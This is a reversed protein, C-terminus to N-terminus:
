DPSFADGRDLVDKLQPRTMTLEITSDGSSLEVRHSEIRTLEYKQGNAQVFRGLLYLQGNILAASRRRGVITSNLVLKEPAAAPAPAAVAKSPPPEAAFLVPLPELDEAILFPNRTLKEVDASQYAPHEDLSKTVHSWFEAPVTPAPTSPIAGPVSVAPAPAPNAAMRPKASVAKMLMPVWFCCGFLFLGALIGAKKGNAKVEQQFRHWLELM